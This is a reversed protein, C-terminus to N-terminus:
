VYHIFKSLPSFFYLYIVVSIGIGLSFDCNVYTAEYEYTSLDQNKKKAMGHPMCFRLEGVLAWVWAGKM